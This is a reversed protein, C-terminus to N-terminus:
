EVEGDAVRRRRVEAALVPEIAELNQKIGWGFDMAQRLKNIRRQAVGRERLKRDYLEALAIGMSDTDWDFGGSGTDELVSPALRLYDDVLEQPDVEVAIAAPDHHPMLEDRFGWDAVGYSADVTLAAAPLPEAENFDVEYSPQAAPTAYDDWTGQPPIPRYRRLQENEGKAIGLLKMRWASFPTGDAVAWALIDGFRKGFAYDHGAETLHSLEHLTTFAVEASDANPDDLMIKQRIGLEQAESGPNFCVGLTRTTNGKSGGSRKQCLLACNLGLADLAPLFQEAAIRRLQEMGRKTFARLEISRPSLSPDLFTEVLPYNLEDPDKGRYNEDNVPATHIIPVRQKPENVSRDHTRVGM